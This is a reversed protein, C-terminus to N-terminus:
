SSHTKRWLLHNALQHNGRRRETEASLEVFIAVSSPCRQIASQLLKQIRQHTVAASPSPSSSLSAMEYALAQQYYLTLDGSTSDSLSQPLQFLCNEIWDITQPLSLSSSSSAGASSFHLYYLCWHVRQSLLCIPTQILSRLVEEVTPFCEALSDEEDTEEEDEAEGASTNRYLERLLPSPNQLFNLFQTLLKQVPLTTHQEKKWATEQAVLLLPLHRMVCFIAQKMEECRSRTTASASVGDGLHQAIDVTTFATTASSWVLQVIKWVLLAYDRYLPSTSSIHQVSATHALWDMLDTLTVLQHTPFQQQTTLTLFTLCRYLEHKSVLLECELSLEQPFSHDGGQRRSSSSSSSLPVSVLVVRIKELVLALRQVSQRGHGSVTSSLPPLLPSSEETEEESKKGKRKKKASHPASPPPPTPGKEVSVSSLAVAPATTDLFEDVSASMRHMVRRLADTLISGYIAKEEKLLSSQHCTSAEYDSLIQYCSELYQALSDINNRVVGPGEALEEEGEGEERKRKGFVAEFDEELSQSSVSGSELSTSHVYQSLLNTWYRATHGFRKEIDFYIKKHLLAAGSVSEVSQLIQLCFQQSENQSSESPGIVDSSASTGATIATVAHQYVVWPIGLTPHTEEGDGEGEEGMAKEPLGLVQRREQNRLSYWLELEFYRLWLVESRPNFRLGRQLLVRAAHANCNTKLEYMSAQLYFVIQTPYLNLAKAFVTNLINYAKHTHLYSLYDSWLPLHDPFRRIGREFIYTIHKLFAAQLQRHQHHLQQTAYTTTSLTLDTSSSPASSSASRALQHCRLARLEDLNLEFKL